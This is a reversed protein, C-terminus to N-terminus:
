MARSIVVPQPANTLILEQGAEELPYESGSVAPPLLFLPASGFFNFTTTGNGSAKNLKHKDHKEFQIDDQRFLPIMRERLTPVRTKAFQHLISATLFPQCVYGAM